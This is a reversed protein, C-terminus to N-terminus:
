SSGSAGPAPPGMRAEWPRRPNPLVYGAPIAPPPGTGELPGSPGPDGGAVPGGGGEVRAGSKARPERARERPPRPDEEFKKLFSLLNRQREVDTAPGQYHYSRSSKAVFNLDEESAFSLLRTM